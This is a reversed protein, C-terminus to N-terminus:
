SRMFGSSECRGLATGAFPNHITNEVFHRTRMSSAVAGVRNSALIIYQLLLRVREVFGNRHYRALTSRRARILLILRSTRREDARAVCPGRFCKPQWAIKQLLKMARLFYPPASLLLPSPYLYMPHIPCNRLFHHNYLRHELYRMSQLRLITRM